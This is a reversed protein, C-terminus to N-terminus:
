LPYCWAPTLFLHLTPAVHNLLRRPPPPPPALLLTIQFGEQTYFRGECSLCNAFMNAFLQHCVSSTEIRVLKNHRECVGAQTQWCSNALKLKHTDTKYKEIGAVYFLFCNLSLNVKLTTKARSVNIIDACAFTVLFMDCSM